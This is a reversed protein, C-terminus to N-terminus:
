PGKSAFDHEPQYWIQVVKKKLNPRYQILLPLTQYCYSMNQLQLLFTPVNYAVGACMAVDGATVSYSVTVGSVHCNESGSDALIGM